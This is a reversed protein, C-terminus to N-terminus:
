PMKNEKKGEQKKLIGIEELFVFIRDVWRKGHELLGAQNFHVLDDARWKKGTLYETNPGQFIPSLSTDSIVQKQADIITLIAEKSSETHFAAIAIIWPIRFGCDMRTNQHSDSEGQHWLIARFPQQDGPTSKKVRDVIKRLQNYNESGKQWEAVSSGGVAVSVLGIPVKLEKYLKSGAVPWPSGKNNTAFPQPDHAIRWGKKIMTRVHPSDPKIRKEGSNAANSQGAILFVEGVGINEICYKKKVKHTGHTAHSPGQFVVIELTNEGQPVKLVRSHLGEEENYELLYWVGENGEKSHHDQSWRVKM